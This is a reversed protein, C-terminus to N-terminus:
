DNILKQIPINLTNNGPWIFGGRTPPIIESLNNSKRVNSPLTDYNWESTDDNKFLNEITKNQPDYISEFLVIYPIQHESKPKVLITKPIPWTTFEISEPKDGESYRHSSNLSNLFANLNKYKKSTELNKNLKKPNIQNIEFGSYFRPLLRNTIILKKLNEDWGIYFPVPNTLELFPTQKLNKIYLEEHIIFNDKINKDKFLPQDYKLVFTNPITTNPNLTICFLRRVVKLTGKFQHNYVRDAYNKSGNFLYNFDELFPLENYFRLSDYYNKLLLRKKYLLKEQKLDLNYFVPQRFLFSDIEKTLLFKYIPNLYFKEKIKKELNTKPEEQIFERAFSDDMLINFTESTKQEELQYDTNFRENLNFFHDGQKEILFSNNTKKIFNKEIDQDNENGSLTSNKPLKNGNFDDTTLSKPLDTNTESTKSNTKKFLNLILERSKEQQYLSRRDQRTTWAYEGQFNLDEYTQLSDNKLYNGKDFFSIDTDLSKFSSNAGILKISDKVTNPSFLTKELVRDDSVFGLPGTLIYDISYFPISSFSFSIISILFLFNLNKIWTSYPYSFIKYLFNISKLFIIGFFATFIISGIFFGLIYLSNELFFEFKSFGFNPDLLTIDSSITLNGLYQFICSQEIFVLLFNIFFINVLIKTETKEIPRMRREHVMDYVITLLLFIGFFYNIPEFSFWPIIFFRLGFVICVLFFCQGFINGLASVIGAISGQIVLRRAIIFHSCSLPLASFFSNFFGVFFKNNQYFCTEFIGFYNLTPINLFFNEKIISNSIEPILVPLYTLDQFWQFSILYIFIYKLSKVLFIFSFYFIKQFDINTSVSDYVNNLLEIYDRVITVFSM